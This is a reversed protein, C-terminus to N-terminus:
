GLRWFRGMGNWGRGEIVEFGGEPGLGRAGM